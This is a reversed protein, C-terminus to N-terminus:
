ATRIEIVVREVTDWYREVHSVHGLREDDQWLSDEVGALINKADPKARMVKGIMAARDAAKLKKKRYTAPPEFYARIGYSV